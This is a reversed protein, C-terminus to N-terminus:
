SKKKKKKKKKQPWNKKKKKKKKLHWHKIKKIFTFLKNHSYYQDILGQSASDFDESPIGHGHRINEQHNATQKELLYLPLVCSSRHSDHRHRHSHQSAFGGHPRRHDHHLCHHLPHSIDSQSQDTEGVGPGM